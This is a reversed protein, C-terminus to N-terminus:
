GVAEGGVPGYFLIWVAFDSSFEDFRHSRGAGVFVFSRRAVLYVQDRDHPKQPDNGQARYM